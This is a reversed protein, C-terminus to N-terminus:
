FKIDGNKIKQSATADLPKYQQTKMEMYFLRDESNNNVEIGDKVLQTKKLKHTGTIRKNM